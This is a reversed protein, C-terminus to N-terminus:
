KYAKRTKKKGCKYYVLAYNKKPPEVESTDNPNQFNDSESVM